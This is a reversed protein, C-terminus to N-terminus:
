VLHVAKQLIKLADTSNYKSNFDMDAYLLQTASLTKLKVSYQLVLLADTSNVKGDNNVDGLDFNLLNVKFTTYVDINSTFYIEATNEGLAWAKSPSVCINQGIYNNKKTEEYTVNKKSGDSYTVEVVLGTMDLMGREAYRSDYGGNHMFSIKTGGPMFEGLGEEPLDYVGYNWDTGKFFTTRNPLTIIKMSKPISADPSVASAFVGTCSLVLILAMLLSIFKNTKKM